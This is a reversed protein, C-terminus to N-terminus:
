LESESDLAVARKVIRKRRSLVLPTCCASCRVDDVEAEEEEEEEEVFPGSVELSDSHTARAELISPLPSKEIAGSPALKGIPATICRRGNTRSKM